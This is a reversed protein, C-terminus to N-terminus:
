RRLEERGACARAQHEGEQACLAELETAAATDNGARRLALALYWAADHALPGAALQRAQQLSGVAEGTRSLFLQSVGLYLHVEARQPHTRSLSELRRAAEAFDDARYPALAAGLEALYKEEEAQAEGRWILASALPLKVAPKELRLMSALGPAAPGPPSAQRGLFMWAGFALVLAATAAVPLPRWWWRWPSAPRLGAAGFVRARIRKAEERTPESIAPDSFDRVVAACWPCSALHGAIDAQAPEPLVGSHAALVLDPHPCGANRAGGGEALAPLRDLFEKEDPEPDAWNREM